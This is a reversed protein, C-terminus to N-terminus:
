IQQEQYSRVGTTINIIVKPEQRECKLYFFQLIEVNWSM